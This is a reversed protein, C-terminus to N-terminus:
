EFSIEKIQCERVGDVSNPQFTLRSVVGTHNLESLNFTKSFYNEGEFLNSQPEFDLEGFNPIEEGSENEYERSDFYVIVSNCTGQRYV